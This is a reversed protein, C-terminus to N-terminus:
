EPVAVGASGDSTLGRIEAGMGSRCRGRVLPRATSGLLHNVDSSRYQTWASSSAPTFCIVKEQTVPLENVRQEWDEMSRSEKAFVIRKPRVGVMVVVLVM